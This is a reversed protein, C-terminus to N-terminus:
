PHALAAHTEAKERHIQALEKWGFTEALSAATTQAESAHRHYRRRREETNLTPDDAEWAAISALSAAMSARDYASKSRRITANM